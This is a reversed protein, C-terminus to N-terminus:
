INTDIGDIILGLISCLNKDWIAHSYRKIRLLKAKRVQNNKNVTVYYYYNRNKFLYFEQCQVPFNTRNYSFFNKQSFYKHLKIKKISDLIEM